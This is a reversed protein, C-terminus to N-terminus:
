AYLENSTKYIAWYEEFDKDTKDIGNEKRQKKVDSRIKGIMTNLKEMKRELFHIMKDKEDRPKTSLELDRNQELLKQVQTKLQIIEKDKKSLKKPEVEKSAVYTNKIQNKFEPLIHRRITTESWRSNLIDCVHKSVNAKRPVGKIDNIEKPKKKWVLDCFYRIAARTQEAVIEPSKKSGMSSWLLIYEESDKVYIYVVPWQQHLM